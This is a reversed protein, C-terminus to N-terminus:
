MNKMKSEVYLYGLIPSIVIAAIGMNRIIKSFPIKSM